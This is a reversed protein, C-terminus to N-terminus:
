GTALTDKSRAAKGTTSRVLELPPMNGSTQTEVLELAEAALQQAHRDTWEQISKAIIPAVREVTAPQVAMATPCSLTFVLPEGAADLVPTGDPRSIPYDLSWWAVPSLANPRLVPVTFVHGLTANRGLPLVGASAYAGDTLQGPDRWLLQGVRMSAFRFLAANTGLIENVERLNAARSIAAAVDRAHITDRIATRARPLASAIIAGAELFEHYDLRRVGFVIFYLVIAAIASVAVTLGPSSFAVFLGVTAVVAAHVYILAVARRQTLGVARLQHHIHRADARSMKQGRLWRRLMAVGTDLLPYALAFLPIV